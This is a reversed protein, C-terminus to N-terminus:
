TSPVFFDSNWDNNLKLVKEIVDRVCAHGGEKESIFHAINKVEQVADAPACAVGVQQMAEIDPVDDGMMLVQEKHLGLNQLYQNLVAVKNHVGMEVHQVGLKQLRQVVADSKGGSIILFKYGKKVALQIAYGDKINMTRAQEGNDLLLVTGNTLVGDVDLVFLKVPKFTTLLNM